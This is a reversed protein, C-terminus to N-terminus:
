SVSLLCAVHNRVEEIEEDSLADNSDKFSSVTNEDSRVLPVLYEVFVRGSHYHGARGEWASRNMAEWDEAIRECDKIVRVPILATFDRIFAGAFDRFESVRLYTHLEFSKFPVEDLFGVRSYPGIRAVTTPGKTDGCSVAIVRRVEVAHQWVATKFAPVDFLAFALRRTTKM